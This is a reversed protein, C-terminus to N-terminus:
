EARSAPQRADGVYHRDHIGISPASIVFQMDTVRESEDWLRRGVTADRAVVPEFAATPNGKAENRGDPSGAQSPMDQVTWKDEVNKM